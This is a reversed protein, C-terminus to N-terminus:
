YAQSISQEVEPNRHHDERWKDQVCCDGYKTTCPLSLPYPFGVAVMIVLSQHQKSPSMPPGNKCLITQHPETTDQRPPILHCIIMSPERDKTEPPQQHDGCHHTDM